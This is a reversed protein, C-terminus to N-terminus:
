DDGYNGGTLSDSPFTNVQGYSPRRPFPTGPTHFVDLPRYEVRSDYANSVQIGFNVIPEKFFVTETIFARYWYRTKFAKPLIIKMVEVEVPSALMPQQKVEDGDWFKQLGDTPMWGLRGSHGTQFLGYPSSGSSDHLGTEPGGVENDFAYRSTTGIIAGASDLQPVNLVMGPYKDQHLQGVQWYRPTAHRKVGSQLMWKYWRPDLLMNNYIAHQEIDTLGSIDEFIDEGNTIRMMGPTLQDRPDVLNDGTAISLGTPDVPLTSAPVLKVAINGLKYYKYAAFQASLRRLIEPGGASITIIQMSSDNTSIDMFSQFKMMITRTSKRYGRRYGRKYRYRAM